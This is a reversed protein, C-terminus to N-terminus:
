IMPNGVFDKTWYIVCRPLTPQQKLFPDEKRTGRKPLNHGNQLVDYGEVVV